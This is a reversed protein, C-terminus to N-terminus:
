ACCQALIRYIFATVGIMGLWDFARKAYPVWKPEGGRGSTRAWCCPEIALADEQCNSIYPAYDAYTTLPVQRRFEEVSKPNAGGMIRAGLPSSAIMEIEELLLHEQIGMFERLSFDFFGCYRQWIKSNDSSRLFEDANM